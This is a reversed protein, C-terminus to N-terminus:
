SKRPLRVKVRCMDELLTKGRWDIAPAREGTDSRYLGVGIVYEGPYLDEPLQIHRIDRVIDGPEWFRFPFTGGLPLGDGQAVLRGDHTYVHVFVTYPGKMVQLSRWHLDVTLGSGVARIRIKKLGVAEGFISLDGAEEGKAAIAEVGVGGVEILELSDERYGLIWVRDARRIYDAVDELSSDAAYYGILAKWQRRIDPLSKVWVQRKAGTNAFVFDDLGTDTYEPLLLYGEHGLAFSSRRPALWSPINIFLQIEEEGAKIVRASAESLVSLGNKCLDIREIIFGLSWVIMTVLAVGAVARAVWRRHASGLMTLLDAWLLVVGVSATYLIRPGDIVYRFPLTVWQVALALFYWIIYALLADARRRWLFLLLLLVLSPYAVLTTATQDHLGTWKMLPKAFLSLPWTLAQVFYVSNQWLAELGPFSVPDSSQPVLAWVGVFLPGILLFLLSCPSPSDVAKRRWLLFEMLVLFGGITVGSEYAFPALLAPPASAAVLARRHRSRGEWYLLCALLVLLTSLPKSQSGPSPIAQYSFPFTAFLVTAAAAAAAGPVVQYALWGVLSANGIHLLLSLLHLPWPNHPGFLKGFAAWLSLLLPRYHQLEKVSTWGELVSRGELWRLHILDDFMFPFSLVPGYAILTLLLSLAVLLSGVRLNIGRTTPGAWKPEEQPDVERVRALEAQVTDHGVDIERLDRRSLDLGAAGGNAEIMDLIQRTTYESM